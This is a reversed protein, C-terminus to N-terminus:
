PEDRAPTPAHDSIEPPVGDAALDEPEVHEAVFGRGLVLPKLWLPWGLGLAWGALVDSPFHVHLYARSAGIAVVLLACAGLAPWRISPFRSAAIVALAGYTSASVMSHGSPFAFGKAGVVQLALEPRPRAFLAKFGENLGWAGLTSGALFVASHRHGRWWLLVSGTATVAGLVEANGAKTVARMTASFTPSRLNRLWTMIPEDLGVSSKRYLEDALVAFVVLAAFLAVWRVLARAVNEIDM